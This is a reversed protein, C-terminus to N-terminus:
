RGGGGGAIRPDIFPYMIDVFLNTLVFILAIVFMLGQLVPFDRTFAAQTLLKGIGPITFVIEILVTGRILLGFSMGIVTFVPIFGNRFADRYVVTRQKLGMARGTRVYDSNLADLMSSRTMRAIQAVYPVSLVLAPLFLSRLNAVLGKSLPVYGQLVWSQHLYVGFLVIVVLGLWFYPISVGVISGLRSVHDIWTNRHLASLIGSPIAIVLAILLAYAALEITVGIRGFILESVPAGAKTVLSNGLDGQLMHVLWDAYQVPIPRNLGLQARLQQVQAHNGATGLLAQVPGGPALFMMSFIFFTALLVVPIAWLIRELIYRVNIM